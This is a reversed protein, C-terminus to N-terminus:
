YITKGFDCHSDDDDDDCSCLLFLRAIASLVAYDFAINRVCVAWDMLAEIHFSFGHVNRCIYIRRGRYCWICKEDATRASLRPVWGVICRFQISTKILKNVNLKWNFNEVPSNLAIRFSITSKNSFAFHNNTINTQKM